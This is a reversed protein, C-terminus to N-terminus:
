TFLFSLNSLFASKQVNIPKLKPVVKINKIIPYYNLPLFIYLTRDSNGYLIEPYFIQNETKNLDTVTSYTLVSFLYSYKISWTNFFLCSVRPTNEAKIIKKMKFLMPTEEKTANGIQITKPKPIECQRLFYHFLFINSKIHTKM